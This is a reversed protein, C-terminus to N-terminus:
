SMLTTEQGYPKMLVEQRDCTWFLLLSKMVLEIVFSSKMSGKKVVPSILTKIM